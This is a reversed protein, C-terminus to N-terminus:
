QVHLFTTSIQLHNELCTLWEGQSLWWKHRRWNPEGSVQPLNQLLNPQHTPATFPYSLMSDGAICHWKQRYREHVGVLATCRAGGCGDDVVVNGEVWWVWELFFFFSFFVGCTDGVFGMLESGDSSKRSSCYNCSTSWCCIRCHLLRFFFLSNKFISAWLESCHACRLTAM